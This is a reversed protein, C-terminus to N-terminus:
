HRKAIVHAHYVDPITQLHPQNIFWIWDYNGAGYLKDLCAEISEKAEASPLDGTFLGKKSWAVYHVMDEPMAYPFDNPVVLYEAKNDNLFDALRVQLMYNLISGHEKRISDLHAQYTIEDPTIRGVLTFRRASGILQMEEWTFTRNVGLWSPSKMNITAEPIAVATPDPVTVDVFM